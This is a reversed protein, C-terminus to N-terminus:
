RYVRFKHRSTTNFKIKNGNLEVSLGVLVMIKENIVSLNIECYWKNRFYIKEDYFYPELSEKVVGFFIYTNM